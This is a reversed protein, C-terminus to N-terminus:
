FHLQKEMTLTAGLVGSASPFGTIYTIFRDFYLHKGMGMFGVIALEMLM